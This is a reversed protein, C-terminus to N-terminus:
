LIYYKCFYFYNPIYMGILWIKVVRVCIFHLYVSFNIARFGMSKYIIM